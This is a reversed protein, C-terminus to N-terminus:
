RRRTSLSPSARPARPQPSSTSPHQFRTQVTPPASGPTQANATPTIPNHAGTSETVYRLKHNNIDLHLIVRERSRARGTIKTAQLHRRYHLRRLLILACHHDYICVLMFNMRCFAPMYFGFEQQQFCCQRPKDILFALVLRWFKEREAKKDFGVVLLSSSFDVRDAWLM